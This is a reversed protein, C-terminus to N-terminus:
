DINDTVIGLGDMAYLLRHWHGGKMILHRQFNISKSKDSRTINAASKLSASARAMPRQKIDGSETSLDSGLTARDESWTM